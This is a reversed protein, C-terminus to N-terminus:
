RGSPWGYTKRMARLRPLRRGKSRWVLVSPKRAMVRRGVVVAAVLGLGTAGAAIAPGKPAAKASQTMRQGRASMQTRARDAALKARAKVDTKAALAEVTDGLDRRTQEIEARLDDTGAVEGDVSPIAAPHPQPRSM